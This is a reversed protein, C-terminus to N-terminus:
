VSVEEMFKFPVRWAKTGSPTKIELKFEEPTHWLETIVLEIDLDSERKISIYFNRNRGLGKVLMIFDVGLLDNIEKVLKRFEGYEMTPIQREMRKINEFIDEIM